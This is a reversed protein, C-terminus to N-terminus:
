VAESASDLMAEADIKSLYSYCIFCYNLCLMSKLVMQSFQHTKIKSEGQCKDECTWCLQLFHDEISPLVEQLFAEGCTDKELKIACLKCATEVAYKFDHQFLPNAHWSEMVDDDGLPPELQDMYVCLIILAALNQDDPLELLTKTLEPNCFASLSVPYLNMARMRLFEEIDVSPKLFFLLVPPIPLILLGNGLIINM